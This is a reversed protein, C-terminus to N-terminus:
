GKVIIAKKLRTGLKKLVVRECVNHWKESDTRAISESGVEIMM